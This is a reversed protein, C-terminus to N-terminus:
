DAKFVMLVTVGKITGAVHDVAIMVTRQAEIAPQAITDVHSWRYREVGPNCQVSWISDTAFALAAAGGAVGKLIHITANATADAYEIMVAIKLLKGAAPTYFVASNENENVDANITGAIRAVWSEPHKIVYDHPIHVFTERLAGDIWLDYEGVPLGTLKIIGYEDAAGSRVEPTTTGVAYLIFPALPYVRKIDSEVAVREVVIYKDNAAM